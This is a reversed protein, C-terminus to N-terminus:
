TETEKIFIVVIIEKVPILTKLQWGKKLEDNLLKELNPDFSPTHHPENHDFYDKYWDVTVMKVKYPM